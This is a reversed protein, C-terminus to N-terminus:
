KVLTMRKSAVQGAAEIRYVYVGSSLGSADFSVTHSGAGMVGDVLVAVQQGLTNFVALRVQTNDPLQYSINTTPNFPNPYNQSIAVVSPLEATVENSTTSPPAFRLVFPSTNAEALVGGAQGSNSKMKPAEFLIESTEALDYVTGNETNVISATLNGPLNMERVSISLEGGISSYYGLPFDTVEELETPIFNVDMAQGDVITYLMAGTGALGSFQVADMDDIHTSANDDFTVWTSNSYTGDSFDLIVRPSVVEKSYFTGGTSKSAAPFTITSESGTYEVWFGQFPTLLGNFDGTENSRSIYQDTAPNYVWVKNDIDSGLTVNDFQITASFPNGAIAYETGTTHAPTFSTGAANEAGAFSLTKPWSSRGGDFDAEYVYVAYGQGATVNQSFDAVNTRSLSSNSSGVSSFVNSTGGEFDAGTGGQTWIGSLWSSFPVASPSSLLRWNATEETLSATKTNSIEVGSPYEFYSTVNLTGGNGVNESPFGAGIGENSLFGNGGNLYTTFIRFEVGGTLGIESKNFTGGYTSLIASREDESGLITVKFPLSNNDGAELEWVAGFQRNIAIAYDANFGLPFNVQSSPSSIARRHNDGQDNLTSTNNFGGSKSDIYVVLIDDFNDSGRNFTFTINTGDDTFQVSGNGLVGGFGGNGNGNFTVQASLALPMVM